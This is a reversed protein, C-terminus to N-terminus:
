VRIPSWFAAPPVDVDGPVLRVPLTALLREGEADTAGPAPELRADPLLDAASELLWARIGPWDLRCGQVYEGRGIRVRRALLLLDGAWLPKMAGVSVDDLMRPNLLAGKQGSAM